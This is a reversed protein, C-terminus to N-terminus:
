GGQHVCHLLFWLFFDISLTTKQGGCLGYRLLGQAWSEPSGKEKPSTM